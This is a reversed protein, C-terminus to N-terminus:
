LHGNVVLTIGLFFVILSILGDVNLKKYAIPSGIVLIFGLVMVVIQHTTM